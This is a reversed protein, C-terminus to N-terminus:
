IKVLNISAKWNVNMETAGNVLLKLSQNVTDASVTFDWIDSGATEPIIELITTAYYPIGYIHGNNALANGNWKNSGALSGFTSTSDDSPDIVLIDTPHLPTCYIKGNNSLVGGMYLTGSGFATTTDDSTDIKLINTAGTPIGYIFGNNALVGGRYMDPVGTAPTAFWRIKSDDNTDIKLIYKKSAPMGYIYRGDPSAVGGAQGSASTHATHLSVSDDSTDIKLFNFSSRPIGYICNNNAMAGGMWKSSGSLTEGLLSVSDDSTDIKLIDTANYPMCYIYRGDPSVVGEAWKGSGSLNGFYSYSNDSPDIKLIDSRNHPIGYIYGNNALVAGIWKVSGAVIGAIASASDSGSSPTDYAVLETQDKLTANGGTERNIIGEVHYGNTYELGNTQQAIVKVTFYWSDEEALVLRESIGDLFLETPATDTTSNNATITLKSLAEINTTINTSNTTINTANIVINDTNIDVIITLAAINATNTDIQTPDILSVAEQTQQIQWIAEAYDLGAPSRIVDIERVRSLGDWIDM